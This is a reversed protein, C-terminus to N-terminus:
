HDKSTSRDRLEKALTLANVNRAGARKLASACNMLTSGTTAVDDILLVQAGSFDYNPNFAGRLSNVRQYRTLEVQSPTHRIKILANEIYQANLNKSVSEALLAAQNYGRERMRDKHIPVPAICDFRRITNPSLKKIMLEGLIPAIARIDLYKLAHIASRIPGEYIYTPYLRDLPPPLTICEGCLTNSEAVPEACKSCLHRRPTKASAICEACLLQGERECHVCAIPLLFDLAFKAVTSTNRAISDAVPTYLNVVEGRTNTYPSQDARSYQM